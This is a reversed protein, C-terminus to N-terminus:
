KVADLADVIGTGYFGNSRKGGECVADVVGDGDPDYPEAPCGPNDAQAKLMAQLASPGAWPYKSKLLAAVGSAMPSAMSTGQKFGWGGGPLTSLIRGNKSPTDAPVRSDGGPAAVDVVGNGYTSYFSKAAKPGTASVTVVGPLQTPIDFCEHPDITREVPTSDDPSSDDVIADADLDHNSNGAAAVNLTGKGKAYLQARNVADVIARQDPDNLCNYLWPDVYYSNNTIEIGKDAAFVFACVVSEPFFLQTDPESVKIAAVKVGPAVGAVGVGNRASAIEGAVHTGHDHSPQYPRWAGATTDPKGGVCNASQGASFNPALDPHTDDVGTDIVGVTVKASGPNIKAAKDAGIARLGWQDAELPEQEPGAAEALEAAEAASLRDTGGEQTIGAPALPATRTAGASQVGRVKRIQEGFSPNTSHVVIVGIKRYTIVIDGGAKAIAKEVASITRHDTRTNVVYPLKPGTQTSAAPADAPTVAQAAPAVGLTALALVLGLPAALRRRRSRLHSM